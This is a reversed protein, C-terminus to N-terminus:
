SRGGACARAYLERYRDAATNMSAFRRPLKARLAHVRSPDGAFGALVHALPLPGDVAVVVGADGIREALAGRDSVVVPVGRALAEEVVLGYTEECLSPFVAVDLRRAPHPSDARYAGHCTLAVGLERARDRVRSEFAPDLFRGALHLELNAIGACAEVLLLVGKEEVLNGFSGARLVDPRGPERPEERVPELLGHPVVEISGTWPLTAAIRRRCDESPVTLARAAGLEARLDADRAAIRARAAADDLGPLDKQVCPACPGRAAGHPCVIGAPPRRFFRPCTTWVDHLTAIGPIGAVRAARLLACSTTAWHHVHVCDVGALVLEAVVLDRVRPRTVDLDYPEDGHRPVRLVTVGDLTERRVDEGAHPRDSGSVVLVDDGKKRLERALAQVVRETGGVFEPPYNGTVLAVKM